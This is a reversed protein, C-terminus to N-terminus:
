ELKTEISGQNENPQTTYNILSEIQSKLYRRQGGPTKMPKLRNQKDWQRLTHKSVKFIDAVEQITLLEEMLIM